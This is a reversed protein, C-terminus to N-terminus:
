EITFPAWTDDGFLIFGGPGELKLALGREFDQTFQMGAPQEGRSGDPGAKPRGLGAKWNWPECWLTGFGFIPTGDREAEPCRPAVQGGPDPQEEWRRPRHYLAYITSPSPSRRWILRGHDFDQYSFESISATRACGLRSRNAEWAATYHAPQPCSEPPRPTAPAAAAPATAMEM